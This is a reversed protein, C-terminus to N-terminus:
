NIMKTLIIQYQTTSKSVLFVVFIIAYWLNELFFDLINRPIMECFNHADHDCVPCINSYWCLQANILSFCADHMITFINILSSGSLEYEGFFLSKHIRERWSRREHIKWRVRCCMKAVPCSDVVDMLNKLNWVRRDYFCLDFLVAGTNCWM